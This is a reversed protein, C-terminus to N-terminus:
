GTPDVGLYIAGLHPASYLAPTRVSLLATSSGLATLPQAGRIVIIHGSVEDDEDGARDDPCRHLAQLVDYEM